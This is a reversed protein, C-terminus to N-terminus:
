SAYRGSISNNEVRAIRNARAITNPARGQWAKLGQVRGAQSPTAITLCTVEASGEGAHRASIPRWRSIPPTKSFSWSPTAQTMTQEDCLASGRVTCNSLATRSSRLNVPSSIPHPTLLYLSAWVRM